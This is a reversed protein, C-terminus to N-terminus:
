YLCYDNLYGPTKSSRTSRRTAGHETVDGTEERQQQEEGNVVKNFNEEKAPLPQLFKRNRRITNGEDTEIVYSRESNEGSSVVIGEQKKDRIWVTDNKNLLEFSKRCGHRKDFNQKQIKKEKILKEYVIKYDIVKPNLSTDICPLIERLRRGFLLESPSFGCELKTNCYAM